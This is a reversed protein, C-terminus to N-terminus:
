IIYKETTESEIHSNDIYDKVEDRTDFAGYTEDTMSNKPKNHRIGIFAIEINGFYKDTRRLCPIIEFGKYTEKRQNLYNAFKVATEKEELSSISTHINIEGKVTFYYMYRNGNLFLEYEKKKCGDNFSTIIEKVRVKGINKFFKM